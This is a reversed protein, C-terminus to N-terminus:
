PKYPLYPKPNLLKLKPNPWKPGDDGLLWTDWLKKKDAIPSDLVLSVSALLAQAELIPAKIILSPTKPAM